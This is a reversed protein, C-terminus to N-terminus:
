ASLFVESCISILIICFVADPRLVLVFGLGVGAMLDVSVSSFCGIQGMMSWMCGRAHALGLRYNEMFVGYGLLAGVHRVGWM